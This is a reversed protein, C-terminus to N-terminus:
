LRVWLIMLEGRGLKRIEGRERSSSDGRMEGEEREWEGRGKVRKGGGEGEGERGVVAVGRVRTARGATSLPHTEIQEVIRQLLGSTGGSGLM